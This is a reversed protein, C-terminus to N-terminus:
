RELLSGKVRCWARRMLAYLMSTFVALVILVTLGLRKRDEMEPEATWALFTTVDHAMQTVSAKTGDVFTVRGESLPDAMAIQYGSFAKNYHMGTMLQFGQPPKVYGTLIGYVYDPGFKRAKTILSLDVPNAGNNAARAVKENAYPRKMYDAPKAKVTTPEGEDNLPGPIEDEAAIATVEAESFGLAKLKEYRTHQLAHCTSCVEKYVQFGRQLAGRDFTGFVKEFSWQQPAPKEAEGACLFSICFAGGAVMILNRWSFNTKSM